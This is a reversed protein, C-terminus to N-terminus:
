VYDVKYYDLVRRIHSPLAVGTQWELQVTNTGPAKSSHVAMDNRMYYKVLDLVAQKLDSPVVEYGYYYSVRYRNIGSIFATNTPHIIAGDEVSFVWGVFEELPEYTKGYDLSEEVSVIQTLPWHKLVLPYSVGSFVETFVDDLHKTFKRGCYTECYQIAGPILSSIQTDQNPTNLGAYAKYEALTILDAM